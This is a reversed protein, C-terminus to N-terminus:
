AGAGGGGAPVFRHVLVAAEDAGLPIADIGVVAGVQLEDGGEFRGAVVVDPDLEVLVVRHFPGEGAPVPLLTTTAALVTGTSRVEPDIGSHGCWPCASRAPGHRRGCSRCRAIRFAPRGDSDELWPALEAV